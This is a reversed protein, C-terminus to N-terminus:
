LILRKKVRKGHIGDRITQQRIYEIKDDDDEEIEIRKNNDEKYWQVNQVFKQHTRRELKEKGTKYRKERNEYLKEPGM